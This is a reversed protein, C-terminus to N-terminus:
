KRLNKITESPLEGFVKFYNQSFRNLDHIGVQLAIEKILCIGGKSALISKHAMHIKRLKLFTMPSYDRYKKFAEQLNRPSTLVRDAVEQISYLRECEAEMIEEARSVLHKEPNLSFIAKANTNDAIIDIVMFTAIQQLNRKVLESNRADPFARLMSLTSGIFQFCAQVQESKLNLAFMNTSFEPVSFKKSIAINLDDNNIIITYDDIKETSADYIIKDGPLALVGSKGSISREEKQTDKVSYAGTKPISLIYSTNNNITINDIHDTVLNGMYFRKDAIGDGYSIFDDSSALSSISAGHIISGLSDAMLELEAVKEFLYEAM